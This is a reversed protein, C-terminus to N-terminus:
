RDAADQEEPQRSALVRAAREQSQREVVLKGFALPVNSAIGSRQYLQGIAVKVEVFAHLAQM